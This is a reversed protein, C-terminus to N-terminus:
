NFYQSVSDTVDQIDQLKDTVTIVPYCGLDSKAKEGSNIAFGNDTLFKIAWPYNIDDIAVHGVPLGCINISIQDFSIDDEIILALNSFMEYEATKLYKKM